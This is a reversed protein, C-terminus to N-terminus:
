KGYMEEEEEWSMCSFHKACLEKPAVCKFEDCIPTGTGYYNLKCNDGHVCAGCRGLAECM